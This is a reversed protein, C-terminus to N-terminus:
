EGSVGGSTDRSPNDAPLNEACVDADAWMWHRPVPDTGYRPIVITETLWDMLADAFRDALDHDDFDLYVRRM